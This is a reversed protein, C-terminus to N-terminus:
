RSYPKNQYMQADACQLLADVQSAIDANFASATGISLSLPVSQAQLQVHFAKQAESVTDSAIDELIVCFEDGGICYAHGYPSFATDICAAATIILHDGATHGHTDNMHKLGNIDLMIFCLSRISNSARLSNLHEEFARRNPLNTLSDTYALERYTTREIDARMLNTVKRLIQIIFAIFFLLFGIRFFQGNDTNFFFYFHILEFIGFLGFCCVGIGLIRANADHSHMWEYCLVYILYGASIMILLHASLISMVLDLTNTIQLLICVIFNVLLLLSLRDLIRHHKQSVSTKAFQLLPVPLLM